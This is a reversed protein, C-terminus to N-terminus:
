KSVKKILLSFTTRNNQSYVNIKIDNKKCLENVIYLGLGNGSEEHKTRSEDLKYFPKFINKIEEKKIEVGTNTISLDYFNNIDKLDIIVKNNNPSHLIANVVLNNIIQKFHDLDLNVLPSGFYNISLEQNYKQFLKDLGKLEEDIINTIYFNTPNPTDIERDKKFMLLIRQLMEITRDIEDVINQYETELDDEKIIGDKIAYITTQIVTLPTKLDHSLSAILNKQEKYDEKQRNILHLIENNKNKLEDIDNLIQQQLILLNQNIKTMNKSTSNDILLQFDTSNFDKLTKNIKEVPEIIKDILFTELVLFILLAPVFYIANALIAYKQYLTTNRILAIYVFYLLIIITIQVFITIILEDRISMKKLIRKM